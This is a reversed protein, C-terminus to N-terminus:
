FLVSCQANSKVSSLPKYRVATITDPKFKNVYFSLDKPECLQILYKKKLERAVQRGTELSIAREKSTGGLVVLVKKKKM